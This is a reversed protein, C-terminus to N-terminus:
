VVASTRLAPALLRSRVHLPAEVLPEGVRGPELGVPLREPRDVPPAEDVEGRQPERRRDGAALAQGAAPRGQNMVINPRSLM